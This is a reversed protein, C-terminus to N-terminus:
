HPSCYIELSYCFSINGTCCDDALLSGNVMSNEKEAMWNGAIIQHPPLHTPNNLLKLTRIEMTIGLVAMSEELIERQFQLNDMQEALRRTFILKM